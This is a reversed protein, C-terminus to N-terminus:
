FFISFILVLNVLTQLMKFKSIASESLAFKTILNFSCRCSYKLEATWMKTKIKM